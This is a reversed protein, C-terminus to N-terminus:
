MDMHSLPTDLATQQSRNLGNREAYDNLGAAHGFSITGALFIALETCAVETTSHRMYHKRPLRKDGPREQVVVVVRRLRAIAM